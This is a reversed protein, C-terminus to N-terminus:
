GPNGKGEDRGEKGEDPTGGGGGPKTPGDGPAERDEPEEKAGGTM